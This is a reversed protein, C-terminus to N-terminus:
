LNDFNYRIIKLLENATFPKQLYNEGSKLLVGHKEVVNDTYGSMYLVKADGIEGSVEEIFRIGSMVPMVVDTLVLDIEGKREKCISVANNVDSAEIVNYGYMQLAECTFQLVEYQDEVVLVTESGYFHNSSVISDTSIVEMSEVSPFYVKVTTGEGPASEVSLYGGSQHVIGYVTSM